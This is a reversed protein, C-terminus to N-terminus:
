DQMLYLTYATGSVSGHRFVNDTIEGSKLKKIDSNYQEKIEKQAEDSDFYKMANTMQRETFHKVYAKKVLDRYEELTYM